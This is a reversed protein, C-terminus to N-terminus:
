GQGMNLIKNRMKKFKLGQLPKSFFDGIMDDTSCYKIELDKNEIRDKLYYYRINIHRTRKSSSERGNELLLMTSKNDQLLVTKFDYGQEELFYKTWMIHGTMDDTAVLEAETSSKTNLKQKSSRSIVSGKGMTMTGGSHSKMDSHVAFAADVSWEIIGNNDVEITLYLDKTTDLYRM